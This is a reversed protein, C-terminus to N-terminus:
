FYLNAIRYVLGFSKQFLFPAEVFCHQLQENKNRLSYGLDDTKEAYDKITYFVQRSIFSDAGMPQFKAM